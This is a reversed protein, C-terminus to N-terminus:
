QDKPDVAEDGFFDRLEQADLVRGYEEVLAGAARGVRHALWRRSVVGTLWSWLVQGRRQTVRQQVHWLAERRGLPFDVGLRHDITLDLERRQYEAPTLPAQGHDDRTHLSVIGAEYAKQSLRPGHRGPTPDSTAM